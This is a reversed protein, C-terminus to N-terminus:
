ECSTNYLNTLLCTSFGPHGTKNVTSMNEEGAGYVMYSEPTIKLFKNGIGEEEEVQKRKGHGILIGYLTITPDLTDKYIKKRM